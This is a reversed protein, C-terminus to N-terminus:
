RREYDAEVYGLPRSWQVRRPPLTDPRGPRHFYVMVETFQEKLPETLQRAISLAEDLHTTEVQMVLVGHAAFRETVTWRAWPVRERKVAPPSEAFTPVASPAGSVAWVLACVSLTLAGLSWVVVRAARSM